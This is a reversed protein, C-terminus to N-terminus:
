NSTTGIAINKGAIDCITNTEIVTTDDTIKQDRTM